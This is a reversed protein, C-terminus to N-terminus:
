ANSELRLYVMTQNLLQYAVEGFTMPGTIRGTRKGELESYLYNLICNCSWQMGSADGPLARTFARPYDDVAQAQRYEVDDFVPAYFDVKGAATDVSQISVNVMAGCYDAVLPLKTDLKKDSVYRAFDVREGNVFAEQATFGTRPFRIRDGRGQTFLNVIDVHADMADPLPVHLALAKDGRFERTQGNGAVAASKGLDDLHIGSVWGVLPKVYMDEFNPAERAFTSHVASFAPLVLLTFGHAPADVCVRRIDHEDYWRLVPRGAPVPVPTVFVRDRTTAGGDQGMFYPISGAIWLGSPLRRLLQEDGAISFCGGDQQRIARSAQEVSMLMGCSAGITDDLTAPTNM